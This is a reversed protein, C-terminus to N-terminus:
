IGVEIYQSRRNRTGADMKIQEMFAGAVSGPSKANRYTQVTMASEALALIAGLAGRVEIRLLGAEPVLRIEDVLGRILERAEAADDQGLLRTLDAVRSRYLQAMGPHLRLAPAQSSALDRELVLKRAELLTMRERVTTAPVGEMLAEVLKNLHRQVRELEQRLAAQGTAVEAQLRNWEATFELVFVRFLEPDMLRQQLACLVEREM